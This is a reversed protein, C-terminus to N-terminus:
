TGGVVVREGHCAVNKELQSFAASLPEFSIVNADTKELIETTYRGVNAGIDICLKPASPSLIKSIFYTEGSEVNNRFNNYGRARLAVNLVRDNISAFIGKSFLAVYFKALFEAM